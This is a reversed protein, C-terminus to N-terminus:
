GHRAKAVTAAVLAGIANAVLDWGTNVYGGVNTGPIMLVAAFEVIENLSGLGMGALWCLALVGTTPKLGLTNRVCEWTTWTAAAFGYAHVVNDFKLYGPLLWLSYLVGSGNDTLEPPVRMLGGLMHLLGWASLLLLATQSLNAKRHILVVVIALVIVIGIYFLFETNRNAVAFPTAIALYAATFLAVPVLSTRKEKRHLWGFLKMPPPPIDNRLRGFFVRDM